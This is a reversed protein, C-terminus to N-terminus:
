EHLHETSANARGNHHISPSRRQQSLSEVAPAALREWIRALVSPERPGPAGRQAAVLLALFAALLTLSLPRAIRGIM